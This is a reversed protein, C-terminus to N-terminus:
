KVMIRELNEIEFIGTGYIGLLMRCGDLVEYCVESFANKRIRLRM